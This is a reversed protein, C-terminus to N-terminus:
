HGDAEEGEDEYEEELEDEDPELEKGFHLHGDVDYYFHPHEPEEDIRKAPSPYAIGMKEMIQSSREDRTDYEKKTRM